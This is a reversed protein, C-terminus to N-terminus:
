PARNIIDDLTLNNLFPNIRPILLNSMLDSLENEFTRILSPVLDQAVKNIVAGLDGGGLIGQVNMQLSPLNLRVDMDTVNLNNNSGLFRIQAFGSARFNRPELVFNGQGFIPVLGGFRGNLNYWGTFRVNPWIFDFVFRMTLLSLRVDNIRFGDLGDIRFNRLQGDLDVLHGISWSVDLTPIITPALVPFGTEPNGNRMLDRLIVDFAHHIADNINSQSKNGPLFVFVLIIFAFIKM